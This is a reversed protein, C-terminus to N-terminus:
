KERELIKKVDQFLNKMRKIAPHNRGLKKKFEYLAENETAVYTGILLKDAYCVIKEELTKPVLDKNPLGLNIGEEKPIGAGVHTEVISIIREDIDKEKLIQTGIVGHKVGHTKSRGIDHLVAGAIVIKRDVKLGRILKKVLETVSKSHNIVSESAKERKLLELAEEETPIWNGM